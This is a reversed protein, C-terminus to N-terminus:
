DFEQLHTLRIKGIQPFPYRMSIKKGVAISLTNDFMVKNQTKIKGQFSFSTNIHM